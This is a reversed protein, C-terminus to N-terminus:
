QQDSVAHEHKVEKEMAALYCRACIIEFQEGDCQPMGCRVCKWNSCMSGGPPAGLSRIGGPRLM